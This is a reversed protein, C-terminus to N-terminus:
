SLRGIRCAHLWAKYFDFVADLIALPLPQSIVAVVRPVIFIPFIVTPHTSM